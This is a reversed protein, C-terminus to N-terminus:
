HVDVPSVKFLDILWDELIPALGSPMEIQAGELRQSLDALATRVDRTDLELRMRLKPGVTHDAEPGRKTM